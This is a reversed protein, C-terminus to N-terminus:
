YFIIFLMLGGVLGGAWEGAVTRLSGAKSAIPSAAPWSPRLWGIALWGGRRDMAVDSELCRLSSAAPHTGLVTAADFVFFM